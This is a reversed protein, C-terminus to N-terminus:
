DSKRRTSTSVKLGDSGTSQVGLAGPPRYEYREFDLFLTRKLASPVHSYGVFPILISTSARYEAYSQPFRDYYRQLTKGNAQAVGTAPVNLLIHMTFLPSTATLWWGIDAIGAGSGFALLWLCWMQLMEGFYNPHRSYSWLGATCFGGQRGARVWRAKQLDAAVECAVGLAFGSLLAFDRRVLPMDPASNIFLLPGSILMVWVGQVTWFVLFEGFKSKVGDFRADGGREHARWALFALLWSRSMMFILTALVKRPGVWGGPSSTASYAALAIFNLGGTVDYLVETQYAFGHAFGALQLLATILAAPVWMINVLSECSPARRARGCGGV